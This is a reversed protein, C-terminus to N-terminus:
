ELNLMYTDMWDGNTFTYYDYYHRTGQEEQEKYFVEWVWQEGLKGPTIHVIDVKGHRAIVRKRITSRAVGDSAKEEHIHEENVWVLLPEGISNNGFVITYNMEGAFFEVHDVETMTTLELAWRIAVREADDFDEKVVAYLWMLLSLGCLLVGVISWIWKKM